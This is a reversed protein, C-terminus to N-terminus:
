FYVQVALFEANRERAAVLQAQTGERLVLPVCSRTVCGRVLERLGLLQNGDIEIQWFTRSIDNSLDM